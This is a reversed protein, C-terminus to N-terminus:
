NCEQRLFLSSTLNTLTQHPDTRSEFSSTVSNVNLFWNETLKHRRLNDLEHMSPLLNSPAQVLNFARRKELHFKFLTMCFSVRDCSREQYVTRDKKSSMGILIYPIEFIM